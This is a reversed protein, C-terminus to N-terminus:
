KKMIKIGDKQVDTEIQVVYIGMPLGSMNVPVTRNGTIEFSQLQRGNLDFLKATGKNYDYGVIVNTFSDAPNPFAEISLKEAKDKDEDALKVVWFDNGGIQNNRQKSPRDSNSIGALLYGGDRTIIVKKLVDVGASGINRSWHDRGESSLKMIVYDDIGEKKKTKMMSAPAGKSNIGAILTGDPNETLSTLLDMPGIDYSEQWKMMGNHDLKMLLIDTGNKTFSSNSYGGALYNGDQTQLLVYLDDNGDGGHTHEWEMKGSKDLKVVWFDGTPNDASKDASVPSNTYGGLLYGGDATILMSRLLEQYKGGLTREWETNGKSDLKVIWFDLGGYANQEKDESHDSGSSGGLIYGGDKTPLVKTLIDQGKGGLTREWEVEGHADLKIVWYDENGKCDGKKIGKVANSDSSGGLIFGGDFTHAISYLLDRGDGGFSKQWEQDGHENMKWVWYDLNGANPQKKNGTKGSVSSGALIFGYDSTPIADMLYEGHIGGYSQEWDLKQSHSVSFFLLVIIIYYHKSYLTIKM